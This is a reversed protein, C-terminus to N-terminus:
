LIRRKLKLLRERELEFLVAQDNARKTLDGLEHNADVVMASDGLLLRATSGRSM